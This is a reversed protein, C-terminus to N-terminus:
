GATKEGLRHRRLLGMVDNNHEDPIPASGTMWGYLDPDGCTLLAEYADLQEASFDPLHADAFAGLLLDM